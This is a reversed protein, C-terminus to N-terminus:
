DEFNNKYLLGGLDGIIRRVSICFAAPNCDREVLRVQATQAEKWAVKDLALKVIATAMLQPDPPSVVIDADDWGLQGALLQTVVVPVGYSAADYVKIPVGAAFRTPAIMIRARVFVDKMDVPNDMVRYSHTLKASKAFRAAESGAIVFQLGELDPMLPRIARDFWLLADANPGDAQAYSGVLVIDRTDLFKPQNPHIPTSHRLISVPIKLGTRDMLDQLLGRDIENVVCVHNVSELFEMERLVMEPLEAPQGSQVAYTFWRTAAVAETDLVVSVSEFFEPCLNRWQNLRQLNHTRSLWMINYVGIRTRLFDIINDNNIKSLIKATYDWLLYCAAHSV